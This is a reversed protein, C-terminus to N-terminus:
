MCGTKDLYKATTSYLVSYHDTDTVREDERLIDVFSNDFFDDSIYLVNKHVAIQDAVTPFIEIVDIWGAAASATITMCFMILVALLATQKKHKKINALSLRLIREM